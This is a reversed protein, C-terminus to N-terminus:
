IEPVPKSTIMWVRLIVLKHVSDSLMVVGQCDVTVGDAYLWMGDCARLVIGCTCPVCVPLLIAKMWELGTDCLLKYGDDFARLHHLVIGQM